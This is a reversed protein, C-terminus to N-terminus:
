IIDTLVDCYLVTQPQKMPQVTQIDTSSHVNLTYM